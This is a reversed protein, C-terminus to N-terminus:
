IKEVHVKDNSKHYIKLNELRQQIQKKYNNIGGYNYKISLYENQIENGIELKDPTNDLYINDDFIIKAKELNEIAYLESKTSGKMLVKATYLHSRAKVMPDIDKDKILYNLCNYSDVFKHQNYYKIAEKLLTEGLNFSCRSNFTKVKLAPKASSAINSFINKTSIMNNHRSCIVSILKTM